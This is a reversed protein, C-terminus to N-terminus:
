ERKELEGRLKRADVVAGESAIRSSQRLEMAVRIVDKEDTGLPSAYMADDVLGKALDSSPNSVAVSCASLLPLISKRHRTEVQPLTM